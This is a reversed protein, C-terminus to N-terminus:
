ALRAFDEPTLDTGYAIPNNYLMAPRGTAAAVDQLYALTERRDSAYRMPPLLMFADAGATEAARAFAKAERTASEAICVM